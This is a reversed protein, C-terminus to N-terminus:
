ERKNAEDRVVLLGVLSGFGSTFILYSFILALKANNISDDGWYSAIKSDDFGLADKICQARGMQECPAKQYYSFGVLFTVFDKGGRIPVKVVVETHVVFLILFAILTFGIVMGFLKDLVRKTLRDSGYWQVLVAVIGMLASSLPIATDQISTPILKLLPSFLPVNVRGLYPALGVAVSVGFALLYRVFKSALRPPQPLAPEAARIPKAAGNSM